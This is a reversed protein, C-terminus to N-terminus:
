AFEQTAEAQLTLARRPPIALLERKLDQSLRMRIRTRFPVALLSGDGSDMLEKWVGEYGKGTIKLTGGDFTTHFAYEHLWHNDYGERDLVRVEWYYPSRARRKLRKYFVELYARCCFPMLLLQALILETHIPQWNPWGFKFTAWITAPLVIVGLELFFGLKKLM